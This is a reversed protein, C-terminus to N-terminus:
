NGANLDRRFSSPVAFLRFPDEQYSFRVRVEALGPKDTAIVFSAGGVEGTQKRLLRHLAWYGEPVTLAFNAREGSEATGLQLGVQAPESTHWNVKLTQWTPRQNFGFVAAKGSGIFTLIAAPENPKAPPLPEARILLSLASPVGEEDWLTGSLEELHNLVAFLDSPWVFDTELSKISRWRVAGPPGKACIPAVFARVARWFAGTTPHLAAELEKPTAVSTQGPNFPFKELLPVIQARVRVKWSKDLAAAIDARGLRDIARIPQLFPERWRGSVGASKLWEETIRMLSDRHEAVIDFCMRGLPTLQAEFDVAREEPAEKETLEALKESADLDTLVRGLIGRYNELETPAKPGASALLQAVPRFGAMREGMARLYPSTAPEITTHDVVTQFLDQFRSASLKMQGLVLKLAGLSDVNISWSEYYDQWQREYEAAYQEAAGSVLAELEDRAERGLDLSRLSAEFNAIQPVIEREYAPRTYEGAVVGKGPFLFASRAPRMVVDPYTGSRGFFIRAGSSQNDHIFRTVLARMRGDDTGRRWRAEEFTYVTDELTIRVTRSPTQAKAQIGRLRYVLEPLSQEKLPPVDMSLAGIVDLPETFQTRQTVLWAPVELDDIYPQFLARQFRPDAKLMMFVDRTTYRRDVITLGDRLEKARAQLGALVEATLAQGSIATELGLFFAHWTEAQTVQYTSRQYPLDGITLTGTWPEESARVYTGVVASPLKLARAWEDVRGDLIYSGLPGERSAYVLGLLYLSAEHANSSSAMQGPLPRLFRERITAALRENLRKSLGPNFSPLLRAAGRGGEEFQTLALEAEAALYPDSGEEAFTELPGRAQAMQLQERAFGAGLWVLGLLLLVGALMRHRATVARELEQGHVTLSTEFPNSLTLAGGGTHSSLYLDGVQPEFSRPDAECLTTLFLGLREFTSSAKGLFALVRLYDRAPLKTLALPLFEEFPELCTSLGMNAATPDLQIQHPIEEKEIFEAFPVYGEVHDMHTLVIRTEVPANAVRSLVNLKGRLTQAHARLSEASAEHLTAASITLVAISPRKRGTRRWLAMLASRARPNTDVLLSSPVEQVLVRSGLYIQLLPDAVYSPYFQASQGKWDTCKNVLQSKGSGSEGFVVFSQFHLVYRRFESPIQALFEKWVKVLSRATVVPQASERRARRRRVLVVVVGVLLLVGAVIGVILWPVQGLVRRTTELDFAALSPSM